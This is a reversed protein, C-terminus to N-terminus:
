DLVQDLRGVASRLDAVVRYIDPGTRLVTPGAGWPATARALYHTLEDIGLAAAAVSSPSHPGDNPWYDGILM